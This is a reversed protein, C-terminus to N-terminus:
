KDKEKDESKLYEKVDERIKNEYPSGRIMLETNANTMGVITMIYAIKSVLDLNDNTLVSCDTHDVKKKEDVTYYQIYAGGIGYKNLISQIEKIAATTNDILIKKMNNKKDEETKPFQKINSM